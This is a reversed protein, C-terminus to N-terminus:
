VKSQSKSKNEHAVIKIFKIINWLIAFFLFLNGFLIGPRLVRRLSPDGGGKPRYLRNIILFLVGTKRCTTWFALRKTELYLSNRIALWSNRIRGVGSREALHKVRIGTQQIELGAELTRRFYDQEEGYMYFSEDFYGVIKVVDMHMGFLFGSINAGQFSAGSIVSDELFGLVTANPMLIASKIAKDIAQCNEANVTIDSNAVLVYETGAENHYKLGTNVAAAFGGNKERIIVQAPTSLLLTVSDDSSADDIVTIIGEPFGKSFREVTDVIFEAGNYNPILIALVTM